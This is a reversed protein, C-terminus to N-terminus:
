CVDIAKKMERYLKQLKDPGYYGRQREKPRKEKYKEKLAKNMEIEVKLSADELTMGDNVNEDMLQYALVVMDADETYLMNGKLGFAALMGNEGKAKPECKKLKKASQILYEIIWDPYTKEDYMDLLLIAEWVYMPNGTRRYNFEYEVMSCCRWGRNLNMRFKKNSM